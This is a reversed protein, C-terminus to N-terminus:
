HEGLYTLSSSAPLTLLRILSSVLPGHGSMILIPCFAKHLFSHMTMPLTRAYLSDDTLATLFREQRRVIQYKQNSSVTLILTMKSCPSVSLKTIQFPVMSHEAKRKNGFIFCLVSMEVGNRLKEEDM